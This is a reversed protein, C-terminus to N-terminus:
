CCIFCGYRSVFVNQSAYGTPYSIPIESGNKSFGLENSSYQDSERPHFGLPLLFSSVKSVTFGDFNLYIKYFYM